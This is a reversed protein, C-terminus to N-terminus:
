TVREFSIASVWPNMEWLAISHIECWAKRFGGIHERSPWGAAYLPTVGEAEADDENIEQLREVKVGTVRLTIRSAWRPMHISPLWRLSGEPPWPEDFGHRRCEDEYGSAYYLVFGPDTNGVIAIRERVWLTDGVEWVPERVQERTCRYALDHPKGRAVVDAVTLGKRPKLIRRTMTKRGELIARVMPGSFLIPREAM